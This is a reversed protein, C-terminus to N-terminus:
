INIKLDDKATRIVMNYAKEVAELKHYLSHEYSDICSVDYISVEGAVLDNEFEKKIQTQRIEEAKFYYRLVDIVEKSLFLLGKENLLKKVEVTLESVKGNYIKEAEFILFSKSKEYEDEDEMYSLKSVRNLYKEAEECSYKIKLLLNILEIFITKRFEWKQQEIWIKNSLRNKVDEVAETQKQLQFITDDLRVKVAKLEGSKKMYSFLYAGFYAFVFSILAAIVYTLLSLEIGNEFFRDLVEIINSETL